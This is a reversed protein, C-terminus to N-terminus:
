PDEEPPTEHYPTDEIAKRRRYAIYAVAGLAVVIFPIVSVNAITLGTTPVFRYTNASDASTIASSQYEVQTRASQTALPIAAACLPLGLLAIVLLLLAIKKRVSLKREATKPGQSNAAM